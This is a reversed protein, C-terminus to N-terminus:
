PIAGHKVRMPSPEYQGDRKCLHGSAQFRCQISLETCDPLVQLEAVRVIKPLRRECQLGGQYAAWALVKYTHLSCQNHGWSGHRSLIQLVPLAAALQQLLPLHAAYDMATSPSM